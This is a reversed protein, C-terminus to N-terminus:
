LKIMHGRNNKGANPGHLQIAKQNIYYYIYHDPPIKHVIKTGPPINDKHFVWYFVRQRFGRALERFDAPMMGAPVSCIRFDKRELDDLTMEIPKGEMGDWYEMKLDVFEHLLPGAPILIKKQNSKLIQENGAFLKRGHAALFDESYGMKNNKKQYIHTINNRRRKQTPTLPITAPM